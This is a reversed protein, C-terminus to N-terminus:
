DNKSLPLSVGSGLKISCRCPISLALSANSFARLSSRSFLADRALFLGKACKRGPSSTSKQLCPLPLPARGCMLPLNCPPATTSAVLVSISSSSPDRFVAFTRSSQDFTRRWLQPVRTFHARCNAFMPCACLNGHVWSPRSPHNRSSCNSSKDISAGGFHLCSLHRALLIPLNNMLLTPAHSLVPRSFIPSAALNRSLGQADSLHLLTTVSLHFFWHSFHGFM